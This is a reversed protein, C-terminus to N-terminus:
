SKQLHVVKIKTMQHDPITTTFNKVFRICREYLKHFQILSIPKELLRMISLHINQFILCDRIFFKDFWLIKPRM